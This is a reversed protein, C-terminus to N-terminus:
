PSVRDPLPLWHTVHWVDQYKSGDWWKGEFEGGGCISGIVWCEAYANNGLASASEPPHPYEPRAIPRWWLLLCQGRPTDSDIIKSEHVTRMEETFAAMSALMPATVETRRIGLEALLSIIRHPTM